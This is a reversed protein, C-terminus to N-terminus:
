RSGRTEDINKSLFMKEKHERESQFIKVIENRGQRKLSIRLELFKNVVDSLEKFGYKDAYSLIISLKREENKSIETKTPLNEINTLQSIAKDVDTSKSLDQLDLDIVQITKNPNFKEKVKEIEDSVKQKNIITKNIPM